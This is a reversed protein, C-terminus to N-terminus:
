SEQFQLHSLHAYLGDQAILSDHTGSECIRGDEMVLIRDCGRITALRHAIILTTRNEMLRDLAQQVLRESEADLASTAEDLLLLKPNRLIARAIAIRQRQGGSLRMGKEGLHSQYKEPLQDIFDHAAAAKAAAILDEESADPRGFLINEAVSTSFIVPEQPVLGIHARLDTPALQAIARDDFRIEGNQPDYFRQLLQFLTTKGAGSPGVIAVREGPKIELSIDHLAAQKTQSPYAFNIKDFVVAGKVQDPLSLVPQQVQIKTPTQLLAMLSEMAGAARQLDGFVESIASTAGAVVVAYFLFQTLEGETILGAQLDKGSIWLVGCIAGFVLCIVIATLIARYWVRKMATDHASKVTKAFQDSQHDENTFAQVAQIGNLAESAQASIDAIRDQSLKSLKRVRRGLVIIPIIVLPVILLVMGTLKPSIVMLMILGGTLLLVNRMAISVSSGVVTQLVTTDTTLRSLVDGTKTTEFFTPDLTLVHNFVNRRLDAVVGEGVSSILYYRGFTAGALVFIVAIMVQIASDLAQPNEDAFGSDVLERIGQGIGLVTASAVVLACCAGFLQWRYPKLYGLLPKLVKLTQPLSRKPINQTGNQQLEMGSQKAPSMSESM